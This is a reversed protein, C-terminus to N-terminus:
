KNSAASVTMFMNSPTIQSTTDVTATASLSARFIYKTFSFISSSIDPLPASSSLSPRMELASNRPNSPFTFAVLRRLSTPTSTTPNSSKASAMKSKVGSSISAPTSSFGSVNASKMFTM